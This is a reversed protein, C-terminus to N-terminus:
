DCLPEKILLNMKEQLFKLVDQRREKILLLRLKRFTLVPPQIGKEIMEEMYVCADSVQGKECLGNILVSYTHMSPVFRKSMMYKWVKLAQELQDREFFMKIMMTYTDTDPECMKIMKRFVKFAENTKGQGILSNLIINCTRANPVVGKGNMEILVRFVNKLKNVKCFASILANYVGVDAEVGNEAMDMFTDIADEIRNEIGYTHILISYLFSTPKCGNADMSRLTEVAEDTRGSKCLVDVMIGYTVIDPDCGVNIMQRFTERAKPLNPERGWGSLLISYTKSDPVFQEHMKDFIEQAKRVNKSKCLASLLGNFAALNPTIGYKEMVNFTYLAEDVKQMRAYKRMIICFTEVSLMGKKRMTNVLDWMIEFQRIKALSGIMIHYAEVTHTYYHQKGAWEFFCYSIMGANGFRKLVDEVMEPSAEVGSHDLRVDLGVKPSSMMIRCIKKFPADSLDKVAADSTYMRTVVSWVSSLNKYHYHARVM